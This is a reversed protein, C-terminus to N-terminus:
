LTNGLKLATLTALDEGAAIVETRYFWGKRALKARRLAPAEFGIYIAFLVYLWFTAAGGIWRGAFALLVVFAVYFLLGLWLGHVLGFLPPLLAAFWSFREPVVAPVAIEDRADPTDFVSYITM